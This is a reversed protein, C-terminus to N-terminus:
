GPATPLSRSNGNANMRTLAGLSVNVFFLWELPSSISMRLPSIIGVLGRSEGLAEDGFFWCAGDVSDVFSRSVTSMVDSLFRLMDSVLMSSSFVGLTAWSFNGKM